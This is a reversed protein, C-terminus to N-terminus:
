LRLPSKEKWPPLLKQNEDVLSITTISRGFEIGGLAGNISWSRRFLRSRRSCCPRNASAEVARGRRFSM